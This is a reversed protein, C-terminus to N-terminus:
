ILCYRVLIMHQPHEFSFSPSRQNWQWLTSRFSKNGNDIITKFIFVRWKFIFSPNRFLSKFGHIFKCVMPLRQALYSCRWEFFTLNIRTILRLCIKLIHPVQGNVELDYRHDWVTMQFLHVYLSCLRSVPVRVPRILFFTPIIIYWVCIILLQIVDYQEFISALLKMVKKVYYARVFHWGKQFSRNTAKLIVGVVFSVSM